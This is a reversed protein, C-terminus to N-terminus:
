DKRSNQEMNPNFQMVIYPIQLVFRNSTAPFVTTVGKITRKVSSSYDPDNRLRKIDALRIGPIMMLERRREDLVLKIVKKATLDKRDIAQYDSYRNMRLEELRDMALDIKGERALCEAATLYMEPTAIGINANMAQAWIYYDLDINRFSKTIFLRFRSDHEKDFLDLLGADVYARGSMTNGFSTTKIYIAEPNDAYRPVDTRGTSLEPKVVKQKNLDLLESKLKLALEVQDLADKYNGQYMYYRALLMQAAPKSGRFANSVPADPLLPIAKILDGEMQDIVEQLSARVLNSQNIDAKLILPVGPIQDAKGADYGNAYLVILQYYQFARALLAEAYLANKKQDTSETAQLVNDIIVNFTYIPSYCDEWDRDTESQTYLEEDLRYFKQITSYVTQISLNNLTDVDPLFVDDTLFCNYVGITEVATQFNLLMEYDDATTPVVRGKPKNGLYDECSILFCLTFILVLNFYPKM